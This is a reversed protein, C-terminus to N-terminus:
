MPPREGGHKALLAYRPAVDAFLPLAAAGLAPTELGAEACLLRPRQRRPPMRALLAALLPAPIPGGLVIAEPDLLNALLGVAQELHLAAEAVWALLAPAGAEFARLLGAPDVRASGEPRGTLAAQAASLSAYRELCGRNGCPCPRGGPVSVVHGLEGARGSSGGYPHGSLILGAGIGAGIFVFLFDRLQRGVGYLREGVAAATADNEVLVPVGLRAGLREAVPFDQWDPLTTPGLRVPNGRELVSPLVVGAGLVRGKAAAEQRLLRRAARAIRDLVPRPAVDDLAEEHRARVGGTLDVLVMLLRRDDVSIGFTFGGQPNLALDISPAGRGNQPRRSELLLGAAVLEAAINSLTQVALGSRRALEARSLKGHHRIAELVVRRNFDRIHELNTGAPGADACLM